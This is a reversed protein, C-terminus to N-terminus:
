LGFVDNEVSMCRADKNRLTSVGDVPVPPLIPRAHTKYRFKDHVHTIHWLGFPSHDMKEILCALVFHRGRSDVFSTM